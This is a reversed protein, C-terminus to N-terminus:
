QRVLRRRNEFVAERDIHEARNDFLHALLPKAVIQGAIDPSREAHLVGREVGRLRLARTKGPWKGIVRQRAFRLRDFKEIRWRLEIAAAGARKCGHAVVHAKSLHQEVAAFEVALANEPGLGHMVHDGVVKPRVDRVVNGIHLRMATAKAETKSHGHTRVLTQGRNRTIGALEGPIAGIARLEEAVRLLAKDDDHSRRRGAFKPLVITLLDLVDDVAGHHPLSFNTARMLALSIRSEKSM